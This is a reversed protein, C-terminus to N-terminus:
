EADINISEDGDSFSYSGFKDQVASLFKEANAQTLQDATLNMEVEMVSDIGDGDEFQRFIRASLTYDVGRLSREAFKISATGYVTTDTLVDFMADMYEDYDDTARQPLEDLHNVRRYEFSADDFVADIVSHLEKDHHGTSDFYGLNGVFEKQLEANFDDRPTGDSYTNSISEVDHGEWGEGTGPVGQTDNMEYSELLDTAGDKIFKDWFETPSVAADEVKISENSKIILKAM